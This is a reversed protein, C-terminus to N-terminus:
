RHLKPPGGTAESKISAAHAQSVLPKVGVWVEEKDDAISDQSPIKTTAPGAVALRPSKNM